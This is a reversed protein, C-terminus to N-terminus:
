RSEKKNIACQEKPQMGCPVSGEEKTNDILLSPILENLIMRLFQLGILLFSIPYIMTILYSPPQLVSVETAGTVLQDLVVVFGFCAMVGCALFGLVSTLIANRRYWKASLKETVLDIAVHKNQEMLWPAGLFTIYFLSYESIEVVWIQSQDFLYRSIVEYVVICADFFLLAAALMALLVNVKSIAQFFKAYMVHGYAMESDM